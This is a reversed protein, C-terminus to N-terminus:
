FIHKKCNQSCHPYSNYDGREQADELPLGCHTCLM